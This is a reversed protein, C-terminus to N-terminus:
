FTGTQARREAAGGWVEGGDAEAGGSRSGEGVRSPVIRYPGNGTSGHTGM